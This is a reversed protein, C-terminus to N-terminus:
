GSSPALRSRVEQETLGEVRIMKDRSQLGRVLTLNSPRLGLEKAILKLVAENAAGEVPPATVKVQLVGERWGAIENRRARPQVRVTLHFDSSTM